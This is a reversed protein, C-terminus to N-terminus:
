FQFIFVLVFMFVASEYGEAIGALPDRPLASIM